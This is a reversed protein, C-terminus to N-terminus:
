ATEIIELLEAWGGVEARGVVHDALALARPHADEPAVAVHAGELLEADNPGDGIALVRDAAVGTTRCYSLVGDWKSVTTPAVTLTFGGYMRDPSVHCTGDARAAAAIAEAVRKEIGLVGFALVHEEDVVVALDGVAVEAGFGALHDPHTSPEEGVWVSREDHDVYVCPEIDHCRFAALVEAAASRAFGGRHFREGTALDLGLGGNLVVAAPALGVAALPERTSAVRRGTAVLLPIELARLAV